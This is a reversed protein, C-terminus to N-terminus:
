VRMWFAISCHKGRLLPNTPAFVIVFIGDPRLVRRAEAFARTMEREYFAKAADDGTNRTPEQIIEAAKPTLPTRFVELYLFGLSRKLWVYFFDSLDAYPVADYYPPDTVIADFSNDGFSLRTSTGQHATCARDSALAAHQIVRGIWDLAGSWDGTSGSFPNVEALDWIMPLAKRGFTNAVFEGQSVWRTLSSGFDAAHNVALGLSTAVAKARGTEMGETVMTEPLRVHGSFTLLALLQRTNFLDGWRTLGYRQVRFGLTGIPPLPEDPAKLM